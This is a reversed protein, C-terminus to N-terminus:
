EELMETSKKKLGEELTDNSADVDFCNLDSDM